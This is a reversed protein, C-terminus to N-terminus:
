KGKPAPGRTQTPCCKAMISIVNNVAMSTCRNVNAAAGPWPSGTSEACIDSLGLSPRRSVSVELYTEAIMPSFRTHLRSAGCALGGAPHGVRTQCDCGHACRQKTHRTPEQVNLM